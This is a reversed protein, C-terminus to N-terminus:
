KVCSGTNGFIAVQRKMEQKCLNKVSELDVTIPGLAVADIDDCYTVCEGDYSMSELAFYTVGANLQDTALPFNMLPATEDILIPQTNFQTVNKLANDELQAGWINLYANDGELIEWTLAVQEKTTELTAEFASLKVDLPCPCTVGIVTNSEAPSNLEFNINMTKGRGFLPSLKIIAGAESIQINSSDYPPDLSVSKLSNSSPLSIAQFDDVSLTPQSIILSQCGGDMLNEVQLSSSSQNPEVHDTQPEDCKELPYLMPTLSGCCSDGENAYCSVDKKFISRTCDKRTVPVACNCSSSSKEACCGSDNINKVPVPNGEGDLCQKGRSDCHSGTKYNGTKTETSARNQCFTEVNVLTGDALSWNDGEFCIEGLRSDRYGCCESFVLSPIFIISLSFIWIYYRM